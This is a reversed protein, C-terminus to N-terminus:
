SKEKEGKKPRPESQIPLRTATELKWECLRSFHCLKKQKKDEKKQQTGSPATLSPLLRTTAVPNFRSQALTQGAPPTLSPSLYLFLSLPPPTSVSRVCHKARLSGLNIFCGRWEEGPQSIKQRPFSSRFVSFHLKLTQRKTKLPQNPKKDKCGGLATGTLTHPFSHSPVVFCHLLPFFFIMKCFMQHM